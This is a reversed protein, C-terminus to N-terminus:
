IWLGLVDEGELQDRAFWWTMGTLEGMIKIAYVHMEFYCRGTTTTTEM